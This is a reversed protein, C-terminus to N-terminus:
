RRRTPKTTAPAPAPTYEVRVNSILAIPRGPASFTEEEDMRALHLREGLISVKEHEAPIVFTIAEIGTPAVAKLGGPGSGGGVRDFLDAETRFEKSVVFRSLLHNTLSLIGIRATYQTYAKNAKVLEQSYTHRNHLDFMLTVPGTHPPLNIIIGATADNGVLVDCYTRRTLAGTGLVSPCDVMAPEITPVAPAAAPRAATTRRGQAAVDPGLALAAVFVMLLRVRRETM